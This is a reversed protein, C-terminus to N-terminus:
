SVTTLGYNSDTRDFVECVESLQIVTRYQVTVDSVKLITIFANQSHAKGPLGLNLMCVTWQLDNVDFVKHPQESFSFTCYM